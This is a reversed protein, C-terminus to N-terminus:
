DGFVASIAQVQYKQMEKQRRDSTSAEVEPVQHVQVKDKNFKFNFKNLLFDRELRALALEPLNAKAHRFCPENVSDRAKARGDRGTYTAKSLMFDSFFEDVDVPSTHAGCTLSGARASGEPVAPPM